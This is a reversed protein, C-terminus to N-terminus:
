PTASAAIPLAPDGFLHYVSVLEPMMGAEAYDRQAALFVDGLRRQRGSTLEALIARHFAHAPGDLSLGSPSIAAITGRGPAKLFAESLADFSPAVFYGNLCNLTLMLPQRAQARLLSVDWSSLVNQSSWVATGGHGVYALLSAGEDLAGVIASRTAGGLERVHLDLTERDRLFSQEVDLTDAEFDGAGDPRDAVLVARGDLGQGSDEWDLTKAVLAEAEEVTGAPLRGVAVDPLADDGNVAGLSPDSATLLYSTRMWLVPLPAPGATGTFNRPDSSGDGLLLVYRISPARWEHYAFALFSRVAEGGPEGDGFVSAIEELSVGLSTLGQARRRALLPEAAPLFAAPAIVVYDAQNGPSRLTSRVPPKVGPTLLGEADAVLVRHGAEVELSVSTPTAELGTLWVPGSPDTLDVAVVDSTVGALRRAVPEPAPSPGLALAEAERAIRAVGDEWTGDLRGNRLQPTQPFTVEVRDLFVVSSVGTDGVNEVSLDNPGDRLLSTPVSAAFRYPRRGDFWAEGIAVGNLQLRLHHDDATTASDSGGQLFARVVARQTAGSDVGALTLSVTKTTGGLVAEWLWPDEAELLGPQYIRNVEFSLTGLSTADPGGTPPVARTGMQVGGTARELAYALEGSFSTSAPGAAVYFFLVSGPGFVSGGPEVHFPVAEGHRSLRLTSVDLGRTRGPFLTEFAVAHLGPQEADLYALTAGSGPLSRPRRWGRSGTGQEGALARDFTVEVRVRRALVLAGAQPEFRLPSIELALQKPEGQFSEGEVRALPGPARGPRLVARRRSALVTGDDRVLMEPHGVAAPLLGPFVELGSAEVHAIRGSRGVVADLLARRFPLAPAEPDSPADFGPVLARVGGSGDDVAVFGGTHLEVVASRASRSVVRLSVDEPDGYSTCSVSSAGEMAARAWAPCGEGPGADESTAGAGDGATDSGTGGVEGATGGTGAGGEAETSPSGAVASVPGHFTSVSHTDVDELRYFYTQGNVLGEDRWSYSAGLPSSGLGPILSATIRTWPGDASLARHLHFGLNDLESGTQWTLDVAHDAGTAAFSMLRVATTAVDQEVCVSCFTAPASQNAYETLIWESSRGANSIRVEDLSGNLAGTAQNWGLLFTAAATLRDDPVMDRWIEVGNFFVQFDSGQYTYVIHNWALGHVVDNAYETTGGNFGVDIQLTGDGPAEYGRYAVRGTRVPGTDGFIFQHETPPVVPWTAATYNPYIWFEFSFQNWMNFLAGSNALDIRSPATSSFSRAAGIKGSANFATGTPTGHYDNLADNRIYAGSGSAEDLHWVAQYGNSWTPNVSQQDASSPNGYYMFLVKDAGATVLPVKVWALLTGAGDYAERQHSLKTTGDEDTFLVDFGDSRAHAALDPDASVSVLVPFDLLDGAVRTHDVLVAKRYQWSPDYWPKLASPGCTPGGPAPASADYDVMAATWSIFTDQAQTGNHRAGLELGDVEAPTWSGGVGPPTSWVVEALAFATGIGPFAQSGEVGQVRWAYDHTGGTSSGTGRSMRWMGKVANITGSPSDQLAYLDTAVTAAAHGNYDADNPPTEDVNQERFVAGVVTDFESRYGTLNVGLKVIQGLPPQAATDALYFDDYFFQNPTALGLVQLQDIATGAVAHTVNIELSLPADLWVRLGGGAAADYALRITYWTGNTLATSGVTVGAFTLGSQDAVQLMGATTLQLAWQNAAGTMFQVLTQSAGPNAPKRFSFRLSLTSLAPTIGSALVSAAAAQRLSRAGSGPRVTTNPGAGAGFSVVESADQTEFGILRVVPDLILPRGRDYAGVRFGIRSDGSGDGDLAFNAAVEVREGDREQYAYPKDEELLGVPTAVELRGGEAIRIGSTGEYGWRIRDPEAGPRVVFSYKLREDKVEYVLDIGPWLDRYIRRVAAEPGGSWGGGSGAERGSAHSMTADGPAVARADVFSQKLLPSWGSSGESRAFWVGDPAFRVAYSEASREALVVDPRFGPRVRAEDLGGRVPSAGGPAGPVSLALLTSILALRGPGGGRATARLPGTPAKGSMGGGPVSSLLGCAVM